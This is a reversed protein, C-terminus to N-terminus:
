LIIFFQLCQLLISASITWCNIAHEYTLQQSRTMSLYKDTIFIPIIEKLVGQSLQNDFRFLTQIRNM